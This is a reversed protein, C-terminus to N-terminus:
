ESYKTKKYLNKSTKVNRNTCLELSVGFFELREQLIYAADQVLRSLSCMSEENASRLALLFAGSLVDTMM